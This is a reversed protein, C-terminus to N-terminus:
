AGPHQECAIGDGDGDMDARYGPQGEYLPAKGAARVENCGAYHVSQPDEARTQWAQDATTQPIALAETKPVKRVHVRAPPRGIASWAYGGALGLMVAVVLILVARMRM